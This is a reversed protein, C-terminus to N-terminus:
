VWCLGLPDTGAYTSRIVSLWLGAEFLSCPSCAASYLVYVLMYSANPGQLDSVIVCLCTNFMYLCTYLLKTRSGSM